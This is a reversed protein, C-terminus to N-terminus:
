WIKCLPCMVRNTNGVERKMGKSATLATAGGPVKENRDGWMGGRGRGEVGDFEM